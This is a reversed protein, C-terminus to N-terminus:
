TDLREAAREFAALALEEEAVDIVRTEPAEVYDEMCDDEKSELAVPGLLGLAAAVVLPHASIKM